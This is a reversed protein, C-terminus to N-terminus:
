CSRTIKFTNKLGDVWAQSVKMTSDTIDSDGNLIRNIYLVDNDAHLIQLLDILKKADDFFNNKVCYTIEDRHYEVLFDIAPALDLTQIDKGKEKLIEITQKDCGYLVEHSCEEIYVLKSDSTLYLGHEVKDASLYTYATSPTKMFRILVGQKKDFTQLIACRRNIEDQLNNM